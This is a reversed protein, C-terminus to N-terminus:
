RVGSAQVFEADTAIDHRALVKVAVHRNVSPQLAKHVVAMGGAGVPSLLLYPGLQRGSLEEM